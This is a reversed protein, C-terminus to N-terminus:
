KIKLILRGIKRATAAEVTEASVASVIYDSNEALSLTLAGLRAATEPGVPQRLTPDQNAGPVNLGNM